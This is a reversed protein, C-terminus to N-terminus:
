TEQEGNLTGMALSAAAWAATFYDIIPVQYRITCLEYNMRCFFVSNLVLMM